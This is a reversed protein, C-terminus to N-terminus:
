PQGAAHEKCEMSVQVQKGPPRCIVTHWADACCSSLAYREAHVLHHKMQQVQSCVNVSQQSAAALGMSPFHM